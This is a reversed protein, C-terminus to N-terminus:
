KLRKAIEKPHEEGTHHEFKGREPARIFIMGARVILAVIPIVLFALGYPRVDLGIGPKTELMIFHLVALALGVYGFTQVAKWKKYGMMEVSRKNSTVAMVVFILLAVLGSVVAAAKPNAFIMKSIDASYFALASYVSHYAALAFGALGIFKRHTLWHAFQKPLMRSLPGLLFAIAIVGIAALAAVKNIEKLSNAPDSFALVKVLKDPVIAKTQKDYATYFALLSAVVLVVALLGLNKEAWKGM